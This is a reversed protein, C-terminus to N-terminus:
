RLEELAEAAAERIWPEEDELCTRLFEASGRDGARGLWRIASARELAHGERAFGRVRSLALPDGLVALAGAVPRQVDDCDSELAARLSAEAAELRLEAILQCLSEADHEDLAWGARDQSHERLARIRTLVGATAEADGRRALELLAEARLYENEQEGAWVLLERVDPPDLRVVTRWFWLADSPESVRLMARLRPLDEETAHEYLARIAARRVGPLRSGFLEPHERLYTGDDMRLLEILARSRLQSSRSRALREWTERAIPSRRLGPSFEEEANDSNLAEIDPRQSRWTATEWFPELRPIAEEGLIRLLAGAVAVKVSEVEWPKTDPGGSEAAPGVRLVEELASVAQSTGLAGMLNAGLVRRSPDADHLLPLADAMAEAVIADRLEDSLDVPAGTATEFCRLTGKSTVLAFQRDRARLSFWGPESWWTSSISTHTHLIEHDTLFDDLEYSSVVQGTPGLFVLCKGRGLGGHVDRLVVHQGDDTVHASYPPRRDDVYGRTWVQELGRDGRSWLSIGNSSGLGWRVKLVHEHNASWHADRPSGWTDLSAASTALVISAAIASLM